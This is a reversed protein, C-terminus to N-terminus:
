GQDVPYFATVLRMCPQPQFEQRQGADLTFVSTNPGFGEGPEGMYAMCMGTQFLMM